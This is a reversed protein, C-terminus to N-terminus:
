NFKYWIFILTGTIVFAAAAFSLISAGVGDEVISFASKLRWYRVRIKGNALIRMRVMRLQRQAWWLFPVTSDVLGLRSSIYEREGVWYRYRIMMSYALGENHVLDQGIDLAEIVAETKPWFLTWFGVVILGIGLVDFLGSVVLLSVLIKGSVILYIFLGLLLFGGIIGILIVAETRRM